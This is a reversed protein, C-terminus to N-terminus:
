PATFRFYAFDAYGGATGSASLAFLGVKAGIWRGAHAQFVTKSRQEPAGAAEVAFRCSGGDAMAVRLVVPGDGAVFSEVERDDVLLSVRRGSAASEVALAAHQQGMVTLGARIGSVGEPLRVATEVEFSRAPLKQLLVNPRRALAQETFDLTFLRLSGPVASLSFFDPRHNAQWQWALNLSAAKFEDNTVPAEIPASPASPKEHRLVPERRAGDPSPVGLLPWDDVWEVPNLHVVRGYLGRDQFHVFWSRGASDDVLAGQHPGNIPTRGRELVVRDEYPGYVNRSRLAVQWGHPVGGAPAMIYYYGNRKYFKPGELTPHREPEHFVIKGEGLIRTADPSMPLVRLRDRIGARSRAYAHVLYANGDDDWLPCPDILGKGALLLRPESYPGAPHPATLVYIGEDPTPAFIFFTGAHERLSPAWFGEGPRVEAYRADPVNPTAYGALSWNVLDRSRLLPLAPTQNFSSAVLFYEGAHALVDPDSYDAFLVPNRYTGDGRDPLWPYTLAASAEDRELEALAAPKPTARAAAAQRSEAVPAPQTVSARCASVCAVLSLIPHLAGPTVRM